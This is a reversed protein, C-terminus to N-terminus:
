FKSNDIYELFNGKAKCVIKEISLRLASLKKLWSCSAFLKKVFFTGGGGQYFYHDMGLLDLPWETLDLSIKRFRNSGFKKRGM